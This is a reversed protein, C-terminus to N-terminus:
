RADERNYYDYYDLSNGVSYVLETFIRSYSCILDFYSYWLKDFFEWYSACISEELELTQVYAM